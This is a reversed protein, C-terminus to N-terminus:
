WASMVVTYNHFNQLQVGYVAIEGSVTMGLKPKKEAGVHAAVIKPYESEFLRRRGACDFIITGVDAQSTAKKEAEHTTSVIDSLEAGCIQVINGEKMGAAISISGDGPLGLPARIVVGEGFPTKYGLPFTAMTQQLTMESDYLDHAKLRERYVDVAPRNDLEVLSRTSGMKSVRMKKSGSIPEYGNRCAVESRHPGNIYVLLLTDTRVEGNLYVCPAEFNGDDGALGGTARWGLRVNERITDALVNGDVSNSACLVFIDNGRESGCHLTELVSPLEKPINRESINEFSLVQFTVDSGGIIAGSFGMTSMGNETFHAGGSTMGVVTLRGDVDEIADIMEKQRAQNKALGSSTLFVLLPGDSPFASVASAVASKMRKPDTGVDFTVMEM